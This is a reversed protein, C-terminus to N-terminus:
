PGISSQVRANTGDSRVWVAAAVGDPNVDLGPSSANQGDQSVIQTALLAGAPTRERAQVVSFPPVPQLWSLVAGGDAGVGVAPGSANQGAASATQVPSLVGAATRARTEIRTNTGDSREWAFVSRGTATVGVQPLNANQGAQSLTQVGGLTGAASRTRAQVRNNTGDSRRWTFVADGSPEIAVQPVTANQGRAHCTRCRASPAPPPVRM